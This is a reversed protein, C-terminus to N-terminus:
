VVLEDVGVGGVRRKAVEFSLVSHDTYYVLVRWRRPQLMEEGEEGRKGFMGQVPGVAVGIARGTPMEVLKRDDGEECPLLYELRFGYRLGLNNDEVCYLSFVGVRGVPSAIIFLGLEPIQTFFCHRDTSCAPELLKPHLPRRM